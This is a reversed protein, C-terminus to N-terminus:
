HFQLLNGNAAITGNFQREVISHYRQFPQRHAGRVGMQARAPGDIELTLPREIKICFAMEVHRQEMGEIILDVSVTRGLGVHSDLARDGLGDDRSAHHDCM